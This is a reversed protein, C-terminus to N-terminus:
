RICENMQKSINSELEPVVVVHSSYTDVFIEGKRQCEQAGAWFAMTKGTIKGELYSSTKIRARCPESADTKM